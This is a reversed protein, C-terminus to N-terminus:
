VINLSKFVYCYVLYAFLCVPVAFSWCGLYFRAFILLAFSFFVRTDQMLTELLQQLTQLIYEFLGIFLDILPDLLAHLIALMLSTFWNHKNVHVSVCTTTYNFDFRVSNDYYIGCWESDFLQDRSCNSALGPYIYYYTGNTVTVGVTRGILMVNLHLEILQEISLWRVESCVKKAEGGIVKTCLRQSVSTWKHLSDEFMFDQNVCQKIALSIRGDERRLLDLNRFVAPFLIESVPYWRPNNMTAYETGEGIDAIDCASTSEIKQAKSAKLASTLDPFVFMVPDYNAATDWVHMIVGYLVRANEWTLGKKVRMYLRAEPQLYYVGFETGKAFVTPNTAPVGGYKGHLLQYCGLRTLFSVYYPYGGTAKMYFGTTLAELIYLQIPPSQIVEVNETSQRSVCMYLSSFWGNLVESFYPVGCGFVHPCTKDQFNYKESATVCKQNIASYYGRFERGFGGSSFDRSINSIIGPIAKHLLCIKSVFYYFQIKYQGLFDPCYNDRFEMLSRWVWKQSEVKFLCPFYSSGARFESLMKEFHPLLTDPGFPCDSKPVNVPYFLPRRLVVCFRLNLFSLVLVIRFLLM